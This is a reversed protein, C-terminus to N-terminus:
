PEGPQGRGAPDGAGPRHRHQGPLAQGPHDRDEAVGRPLGVAVVQLQDGDVGPVRRARDLPVPQEVLDGLAVADQLRDPFHELRQGAGEVVRDPRDRLRAYAGERTTDVIRAPANIVPRPWDKLWADLRHLLAHNRETQGMAVLLVDHEPLGPLVTEDPSLYVMDIDVDADEVLFELPANDMLQGPAMLALLRIGAEGAAPRRYHRKLELAKAQATVLERRVGHFRVRGTAGEYINVLFRVDLGMRRARDLALTSDKGGSSMLAYSMPRLVLARFRPAHAHLKTPTEGSVARNM